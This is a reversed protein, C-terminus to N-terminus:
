CNQVSNCTMNQYGFRILIHNIRSLNWLPISRYEYIIVKTRYEINFNSSSCLPVCFKTSTCNIHEWYFGLFRVVNRNLGGYEKWDSGGAAYQLLYPLLVISYRRRFLWWILANDKCHIWWLTLWYATSQFAELVSWNWAFIVYADYHGPSSM